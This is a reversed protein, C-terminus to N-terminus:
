FNNILCSTLVSSTGHDLDCCLVRVLASALDSFGKESGLLHFGICLLSLSWCLMLGGSTIVKFGLALLIVMGLLMDMGYVDISQLVM